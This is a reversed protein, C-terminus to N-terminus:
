KGKEQIAKYEEESYGMAKAMKKDAENLETKSGEAGKNLNLEKFIGASPTNEMIKNFREIGGEEMCLAIYVEKTSPAIKGDNIAKEVISLAEKEASQKSLEGLKANAENLSKELEKNKATLENVSNLAKELEENKSNAQQVRANAENLARELEGNKLKADNLAIKLEALEKEDPMNDEKGKKNTNNNNKNNLATLNLNPNNTIAARLISIINASKDIQYVPSIYKYAKSLIKEAGAKTWEVKAWLSNDEKVFFDSMWGMAEVSAGTGSTYDTKHNEDIVVYKLKSNTNNAIAVKDLARFVRGDFGVFMDECPILEIEDPLKKVDDLTPFEFINLAEKTNM